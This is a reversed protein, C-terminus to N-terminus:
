YTIRRKMCDMVDGKGIMHKNLNIKYNKEQYIDCLSINQLKRIRTHFKKCRFLYFDQNKEKGVKNM